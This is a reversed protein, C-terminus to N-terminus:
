DAASTASGNVGASQLNIQRAAHPTPGINDFGNTDM